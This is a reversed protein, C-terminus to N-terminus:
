KARVFTVKIQLDEDEGPVFECILKDDKGALNVKCIAKWGGCYILRKDKWSTRMTRFKRGESDELVMVEPLHLGHSKVM